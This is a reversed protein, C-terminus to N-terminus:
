WTHCHLNVYTAACAVQVSGRSRRRAMSRPRRRCTGVSGQSSASPMWEDAGVVPVPPLALGASTIAVVPWLGASPHGLGYRVGSVVHHSACVRTETMDHPLGASTLKGARLIQSARLRQSAVVGMRGSRDASDAVESCRTRDGANSRRRIDDAWALACVRLDAIEEASLGYEAFAQDDYWEAGDVRQRQIGRGM